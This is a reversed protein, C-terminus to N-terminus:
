CLALLWCCPCCRGRRRSCSRWCRASCALYVARQARAQLPAPPLSLLSPPWLHRNSRSAFLTKPVPCWSGTQPLPVWPNPPMACLFRGTMSHSAAHLQASGARRGEGSKHQALAAAVVPAVLVSRLAAAGKAGEGLELLAHLCHSAAGWAHQQLALTLLVELQSDLQARAQSIRRGMAQVFALGQGKGALFVLRATEGAVREALRAAADIDSAGLDSAEMEVLLKDVQAPHVAHPRPPNTPTPKPSLARKCLTAQQRSHTPTPVHPPFPPRSAAGM